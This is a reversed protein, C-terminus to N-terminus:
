SEILEEKLLKTVGTCDCKKLYQEIPGAFPINLEPAIEALPVLVTARSLMGPHPITLVDTNIAEQGFLLIDCDLTRPGNKETRVRGQNLEIQLLERLLDHAGLTTSIKIVVNIFDPQELVGWPKTQYLSSLQCLTTGKLNGIAKIGDIIQKIPTNLNSGLGIFVEVLNPTTQM